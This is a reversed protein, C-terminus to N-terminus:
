FINGYPNEAAKPASIVPLVISKNKEKKTFKTHQKGRLAFCKEELTEAPMNFTGNKFEEVLLQFESVEKLDEFNEFVENIATNYQQQEINEKFETLAQVEANDTSHNEKYEDFEKTMAELTANITDLKVVEESTLYKLFVKEKTGDLTATGESEIFTYAWRFNQSSWEGNYIEESVYAFNDDFDLLYYSIREVVCGDDDRKVYNPLAGQIARRKTEYTSTFEKTPEVVVGEVAVGDDTEEVVTGEVAGAEFSEEIVTEVEATETTVADVHAVDTFETTVTAVTEIGDAARDLENVVADNIVKTDLKELGGELSFQKLDELMLSFQKTYDSVAKDTGIQMCADEFCPEVGIACLAAFEFENITCSGDKEVTYSDGDYLNIEMSQGVEGQSLIYSTAPARNWLLVETMLYETGNVDEWWQKASEPVIGFPTTANIIQMKGESDTVIKLDHGGLTNTEISYNAVLPVNKLSPLAKNFTEKSINSNNRNHGAYAIACQGYKFTKNVPKVQSFNMQFNLGLRRKDM